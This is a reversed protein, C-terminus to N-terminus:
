MYGMIKLIGIVMAIISFIMLVMKMDTNAQKRTDKSVLEFAYGCHPCTAAKDSVDNNCEPCKILVM